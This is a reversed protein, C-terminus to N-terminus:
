LIQAQLSRSMVVADIRTGDPAHYYAKRLGSEAWGGSAYLGRAANNDIAVELFATTAGRARAEAEFAHLLARGSGNRRADPDVAITLLEAEDAITRGLVFGQPLTRLFCLPSALFGAFEATSWPRPTTFSRAHLAALDEPTM